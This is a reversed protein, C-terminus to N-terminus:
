QTNEKELRIVSVNDKDVLVYSNLSKGSTFFLINKKFDGNFKEKGNKRLINCHTDSYFFLEDGSIEFQKYDYNIKEDLVKKGNLRYSVVKYGSKGKSKELVAAVYKDSFAISKVTSSFKKSYLDEPIEKMTYVCIRNETCVCVKDDTVFQVKAAIDGGFDRAGVIRNVNNKGVDGFNYFNVMCSITGDKVMMYSTVMKKGDPSLDMAVPFGSTAVNTPIELLLKNNQATDYVQIVDSDGESMAVAVVGQNAVCVQTIPDLVAIQTGSNSGDFVSVTKGGVDAIAVYDGAIDAQPNDMNYSGNWLIGGDTKIASAGDKSYKLLNEGYKLYTVQNGDVRKVSRLVRYSDYDKVYVARIGCVIVGILLALALIGIVSKWQMKSKESEHTQIENDEASM